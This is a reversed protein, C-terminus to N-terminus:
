KTEQVGIRRGIAEFQPRQFVPLTMMEGFGSKKYWISLALMTEADPAEAVDAFDFPGQTYNSSLIKIGLKAVQAAVINSREPQRSLWESNHTGLLVYRLM